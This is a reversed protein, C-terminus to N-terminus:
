GRQTLVYKRVNNIFGAFPEGAATPWHRSWAEYIHRGLLVADQRGIVRAENDERERDFVTKRLRAESGSSAAADTEDADAQCGATV